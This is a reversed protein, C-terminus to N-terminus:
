EAISSPTLKEVMERIQVDLKDRKSMDDRLAQAERGARRTAVHAECLREELEGLESRLLGGELEVEITVDRQRQELQQRLEETGGGGGGDAASRRRLLGEFQSAM